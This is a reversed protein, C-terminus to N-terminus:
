WTKFCVCMRNLIKQVFRINLMCHSSFLFLIRQSFNVEVIKPSFFVSITNAPDNQRYVWPQIYHALCEAPGKSLLGFNLFSLYAYTSICLGAVAAEIHFGNSYVGAKCITNM